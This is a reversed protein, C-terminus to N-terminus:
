GVKTNIKEIVQKKIIICPEENIIKKELNVFDNKNVNLFKLFLKPLLIGQSTGMDRIKKEM